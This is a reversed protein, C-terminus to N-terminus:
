IILQNNQIWLPIGKILPLYDTLQISEEKASSNFILSILPSSVNIYDNFFNGEESSDKLFDPLKSSFLLADKKLYKGDNNTYNKTIYQNKLNAIFSSRLTISIVMFITIFCLIRAINLKLNM